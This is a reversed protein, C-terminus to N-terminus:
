PMNWLVEHHEPLHQLMMENTCELWFACEMFTAESSNQWSIQGFFLLLKADYWSCGRWRWWVYSIVSGSLDVFWSGSMLTYTLTWEQGRWLLIHFEAIDFSCLYMHELNSADMRSAVDCNSPRLTITLLSHISSTCIWRYYWRGSCEEASNPVSCWLFDQFFRLHISPWNISLLPIRWSQTRSM